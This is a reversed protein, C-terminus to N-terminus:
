DGGYRIALREPLLGGALLREGSQHYLYRGAYEAGSDAKSPQGTGPVGPPDKHSGM